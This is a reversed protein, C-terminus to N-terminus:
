NENFSIENLIKNIIVNPEIKYLCDYHKYKCTKKGYISCPRCPLDLGICNEQKQGYGLFGMNPHTAGWVSIVKTGVLSALHMNASDMSLMCDLNAMLMLEESLHSRSSLRECYTYKETWLDMVQKERRGHGFLFVRIGKENLAEVVERMKKIPYIKGRHRAFPAIGVWKEEQRKLDLRQRLVLPLPPKKDYISQFDLEFPFELKQFVEQYRVVSNKLSHRYNIAGKKILDKKESRGKDIQVIQVRSSLRFLTCIIKTRIVNHLDAIYNPKYYKKLKRFMKICGWFGKYTEKTDFHVIKVGRLQEFMADFGPSTVIIIEIEPYAKQLSHLVPVTMAVDGMASTRFVVIRNKKPKAM